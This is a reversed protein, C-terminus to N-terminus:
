ATPKLSTRPSRRAGFMRRLSWAMGCLLALAIVLGAIRGKPSTEILRATWIDPFRRAADSATVEPDSTAFHISQGHLGEDLGIWIGEISYPFASEPDQAGQFEAAVVNWNATVPAINLAIAFVVIAAAVVPLRNRIAMLVPAAAVFWIPLVPLLYRPGWGFTGWNVMKAILLFYLLSGATTAIIVRRLVVPLSGWVVPLAFLLLLTPAYFVLGHNGSYLLGLAGDVINGDLSNNGKLYFDTATAPRLPSGTRVWNYVFTPVMCVMFTVGLLFYKSWQGRNPWAVCALTVAMFPALSYRFSCLLALAIGAVAFTRMTADARLIAQLYYLFVCMMAAAPAVDWAMKAYAIFFTGLAFLLALLFGDRAPYFSAFFLFLFTCGIACVIAYTLSTGARALLPPHRMLTDPSAHSMKAALWASPLMLALAGIDHAEYVRRNPSPVWDVTADSRTTGLTGTTALLTAAELQNGADMSGLRGSSVLLFLCIFFVFVCGLFVRTSSANATAGSEATAHVQGTHRQKPQSLMTERTM